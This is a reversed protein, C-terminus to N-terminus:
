EMPHIELLAAATWASGRGHEARVSAVTEEEVPPADNGFHSRVYTAVAAVDRDSWMSYGQMVGNYENGLVEIPGQLGDLIIMVLREDNQTVWHSGALPPFVGPVGQGEGQHCAACNGRFLREGRRIPDFAEAEAAVTEPKWHPDFVDSRFGASFVGMYVGGWFILGSFIFLLFIPVPSFGETPEEKERALQAHVKMMPGDQYAAQEITERSDKSPGPHKLKDAQKDSM